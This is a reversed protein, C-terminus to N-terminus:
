FLSGLQIPSPTFSLVFVVLALVVYGLVREVIPGLRARAKFKTPAVLFTATTAM